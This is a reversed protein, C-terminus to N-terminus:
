ERLNKKISYVPDTIESVQNTLGSEILKVSSMVTSHDKSFFTGIKTFPLKLDHRCFYMAIQRPLVCDRSQGKKLIDEPRIGFHTAIQEVIKEPTLMVKEEEAILDKLVYKAQEPSISSPMTSGESLSLHHRLVLAQLAQMLAKSGSSFTDLLFTSLKTSLKINLEAAKHQMMALLEDRNQKELPLVIGWEFRSILRPEIAQLLSPSSNASLIIQKGTLHLTNFTHFFEEQTASKRGFTQVDDVILLDIERYARRFASMEGARIASIVHETFTEARCYLANIGRKILANATAMLLYSKGCGRGGHLYIPNFSYEEPTPQAPNLNQSIELLLKAALENSAGVVLNSFQCSPDLADMPLKFVPPAPIVKKSLKNKSQADISDSEGVSLHVRIKKGNNNLLKNIVKPRIHEEFWLAQFSDKAILYINGADYNKINLTRLWKDVTEVGLEAEQQSLFQEWDKM